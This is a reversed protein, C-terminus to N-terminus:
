TGQGTIALSSAAVYGRGALCGVSMVRVQHLKNDRAPKKSQWERRMKDSAVTSGHGQRPSRTLCRLYQLRTSLYVNRVASPKM